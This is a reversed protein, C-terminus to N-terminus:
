NRCQKCWPVCSGRTVRWTLTHLKEWAFTWATHTFEDAIVWVVHIWPAAIVLIVVLILQWPEM